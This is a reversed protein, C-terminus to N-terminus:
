GVCADNNFYLTLIFSGTFMCNVEPVVPLGFAAVSDCKLIRLLAYMIPFLHLYEFYSLM